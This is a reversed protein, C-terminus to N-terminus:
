RYQNSVTFLFAYGLDELKCEHGHETVFMVNELKETREEHDLTDDSLITDRKSIFTKLHEMFKAKNPHILSFDKETLVDSFYHADLKEVSTTVSADISSADDDDDFVSCESVMESTQSLTRSLKAYKGKGACLMKFFPESLPIDILRNDQVCKALFIGLFLFLQCIEDMKESDQPLPAPFM